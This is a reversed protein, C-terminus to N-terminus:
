PTLKFVVGCGCSSDGGVLATGYLNGKWDLTLGARPFAGAEPHLKLDFRNLVTEKGSPNLRFVTGCGGSGCARNSKGGRYTTGYLNGAKDRALGAFPGAGDTFGKFSYLVTKKRGFVKFLTGVGSVGGGATTGYLNGSGDRILGAWPNAGDTGGAFTHLVSFKGTATVKFVVGCGLGNCAALNGGAVTTGYLNGAEDRVLDGEPATGDTGGRFTYLVTEKGSTDVVFVVGCGHGNCTSLDGGGETTGYLNGVADRILGGRPGGGDPGGTFTHLLTEGGTKVVFV